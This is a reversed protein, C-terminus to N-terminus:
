LNSLCQTLAATNALVPRMPTQLEITAGPEQLLPYSEIIEGLLKEPDINELHMEARTIKSYNLVDCILRDLRDASTAIRRIYDQGEPAISDGFDQQLLLSFSQMARLPARMDHAISYSFAELEAVTERLKVTREAVTKELREDIQKRLSIDRAIKSAG